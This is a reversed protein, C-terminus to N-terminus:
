AASLCWVLAETSYHDNGARGSCKQDDSSKIHKKKVLKPGGDVDVFLIEDGFEFGWKEVTEKPITIVYSIANGNGPKKQIKTM